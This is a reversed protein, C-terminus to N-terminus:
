KLQSLFEVIDRIDSKSLAQRLEEPMASLGKHRSQIDAKNLKLLGDEPSNIEVTTQTESKILGACTRGDKLTLIVTEFGAAIQATHPDYIGCPVDCHASATEPSSM